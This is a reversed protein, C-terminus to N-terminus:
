KARYVNMCFFFFVLVVKLRDIVRGMQIMKDATKM